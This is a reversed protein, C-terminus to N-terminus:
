KTGMETQLQTRNWHLVRKRRRGGSMEKGRGGSMEEEGWEDGGGGM